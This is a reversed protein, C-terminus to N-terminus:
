TVIIKGIQRKSFEYIYLATGALLEWQISLYNAAHGRCFAVKRCSGMTRLGEKIGEKYAREFGIGKFFGYKVAIGAALPLLNIFLQPWPMNKYNLYINNRAALKVKFENYKSGSTGSGVHYVVATPCYMNHYGFIKARWCVDLDELYAFHKEDFYGIIEFVERRYVAAGACASFVERPRNYGTSSQGVGRQYAWGLVSYMDGADDMLERHHLQIMKSSVAFIKPSRRISKLLEGVFEPEPETDNNLLLVYPTRAARIGANVAGSFGTNTELCIAPIGRKKLWGASGDDSGNDVVLIEFDRCKQRELAALCPELFAKGNYNPIIVTVAAQGAM